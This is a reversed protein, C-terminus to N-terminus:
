AGARNPQLPGEGATFPTEFPTGMFTALGEHPPDMGAEPDAGWRRRWPANPTYPEWGPGGDQAFRVWAAQMTDALEPPPHAGTLELGSPTHLNGFVFPLEMGHSAGLRGGWQPSPWEFDYLFSPGGAQAALAALQRAPARYYYDSQMDCLLTGPHTTGARKQYAALLAGNVGAQAMFAQLQSPQVRDIAGHPVHYLRMEHANSGVLLPPAGLSWRQGLRDLPQARLVIGDVVPRLPFFHRIGLGYRERLAADDVLRQVAPLLAEIPAAAMADLSADIGLVSAVAERSRAADETSHCVLSPSQLIAQRYLPAAEDMGLLCAVAGAGASEGFLTLRTPDGGFARIHAHIWKLGEVLDLLGRNATTGPFHMFGDTGLRYQLSVFVVGRRALAAGDYLPDAASGRMFGGGHIWVMVPVDEDPTDLPTWINATLCAAGGQPHPRGLRTLQPAVPSFARADRWGTWAAAPRPPAFRWAGVPPEAYPVGLFARAGGRVAGRLHGGHALQVATTDGSM